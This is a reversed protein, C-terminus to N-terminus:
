GHPREDGVEVRLQALARRPAPDVLDDFVALLVRHDGAKLQASSAGAEASPSAAPMPTVTATASPIPKNANADNENGNSECASLGLSLLLIAFVRKAM